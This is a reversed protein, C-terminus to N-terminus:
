CAGVVKWHSFANCISRKLLVGGTYILFNLGIYPPRNEHAGNGGTNNLGWQWGNAPSNADCRFRNTNNGGAGWGGPSGGSVSFTHSHAPMESVELKHTAEGGKSNLSYTDGAGVPFRNRLDPVNFTTSGDGTGFTTGIVEFLKAYTTRSLAQGNCKKWGTPEGSGAYLKIEGVLTTRCMKLLQNKIGLM